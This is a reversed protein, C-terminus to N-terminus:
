RCLEAGCFNLANKYYGIIENQTKSTASSNQKNWICIAQSVTDNLLWMVLKAYIGVM